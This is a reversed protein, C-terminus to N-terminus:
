DASTPEEAVDCWDDVIVGDVGAARLEEVTDADPATWANVRLGHDHADAVRESTVLEHHPHLCECGMSVAAALEASWGESLRGHLLYGTDYGYDDFGMIAQPTFSSFLLENDVDEVSDVLDATVGAHKLEVNVAVDDPVATMFPEFRPITADTDDITTSRLRDWSTAAVAGSSDTLRDLTKDHFVVIEGTRCRQVDIEIMDVRDSLHRVAEITNEPADVPCGKHCIIKM